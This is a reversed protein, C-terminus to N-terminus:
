VQVIIISEYNIRDSNIEHRLWLLVQCPILVLPERLSRFPERFSRSLIARIQSSKPWHISLVKPLYKRFQFSVVSEYKEKTSRLRAARCVRCFGKNSMQSIKDGNDRPVQQIIRRQPPGPVISFGFSSSLKAQIVNRLVRSLFIWQLRCNPEIKSGVAQKQRQLPGTVSKNANSSLSKSARPNVSEGRNVANFVTSIQLPM